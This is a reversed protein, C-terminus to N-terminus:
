RIIAHTYQTTCVFIHDSADDSRGSASVDVDRAAVAGVTSCLACSHYQDCEVSFGCCWGVRDCLRLRTEECVPQDHLEGRNHRMRQPSVITKGEGTAKRPVEVGRLRLAAQQEAAVAAARVACTLSPMVQEVVRIFQYYLM